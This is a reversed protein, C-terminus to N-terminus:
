SHRLMSIPGKLPVNMIDIVDDNKRGKIQDCAKTKINDMRGCPSTPTDFVECNKTSDWFCVDGSVM